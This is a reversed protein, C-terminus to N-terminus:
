ALDATYYYEGAAVTQDATTTLTWGECDGTLTSPLPIDINACANYELHFEIGTFMGEGGIEYTYALNFRGAAAVWVEYKTVGSSDVLQAGVYVMSYRKNHLSQTGTQQFAQRVKEDRAMIDFTWVSASVTQNFTYPRGTSDPRPTFSTEQGLSTATVQDFRIYDPRTGDAEIYAIFMKGEDNPKVNEPIRNFTPNNPNAM